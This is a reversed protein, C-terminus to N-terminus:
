KMRTQIRQLYFKLLKIGVERAHFSKDVASVISFHFPAPQGYVAEYPTTNTASHYTTNYWWEALPLCKVWEKPTESTM